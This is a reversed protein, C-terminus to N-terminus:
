VPNLYSKQVCSSAWNNTSLRSCCVKYTSSKTLNQECFLPSCITVASPPMEQSMGWNESQHVVSTFSNSTVSFHCDKSIHDYVGMSTIYNLSTTFHTAQLRYECHEEHICTLENWLGKYHLLLFSSHISITTNYTTCKLIFSSFQWRISATQKRNSQYTCAYRVSLQTYTVTRPCVKILRVPLFM